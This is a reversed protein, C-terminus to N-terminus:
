WISLCPLICPTAGGEYLIPRHTKVWTPTSLSVHVGSKPIYPVLRFSSCSQGVRNLSAPKLERPVLPGSPLRFNTLIEAAAATAAAAAAAAAEMVM